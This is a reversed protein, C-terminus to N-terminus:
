QLAGDPGYLLTNRNYSILYLMQSISKQNDEFFKYKCQNENGQIHTTPVESKQQLHKLVIPVAAADLYAWQGIQKTNSIDPSM